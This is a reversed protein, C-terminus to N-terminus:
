FQRRVHRSAFDNIIADSDIEDLLIKEICLIALGNLREQSIKSRLYNKLLKLNSFSREASAVTVPVTFLLRERVYEFIDMASMPKDSLTLRLVSLESILDNLDVDSSGDFSFTNAFKTCCERLEITDLSKLTISDMLFGFIDKFSHLEEFRSKLSSIAIDVMALFIILKLLKKLKLIQKRVILKMMNNRGRLMVNGPFSPEVGLESAIEKAIILSSAFGNNRYNQFYSVTDEIRMLTADICMSPSQLQKSVKNVTFLIDYWIVMGLIFDFTGLLDFLNKADSRIKQMVGIRQNPIRITSLQFLASRIQPAQFRITKVSKIRSEWRTNCWSKVTLSEVHDGKHKGKMNSGNDYGQGRVHEINLGFSKISDLLSNFLGEGSTDDVKMFGLFYEEVKGTSMNVCRILLSMQEQHSVDPTCDLIVSFYKAEKVTNIISKTIDSALLSILENQIKHSLSLSDNQGNYLQESPGRFALNRKGLFKVVAIIRQLVQRIREKEKTIQQRLENWSNMSTIHQISAEHEKLRENIHKWDKFGEHGLSSKCNETNFLKCSFCFVRDVHKSYVLWKRDYVEENSMKRSYHTYSFHRGNTDLPFEINEDRIPGKEVLIDRSKNDLNDWNVLMRIPIETPPSNVIPEHDSVNNDNRNTDINEEPTFGQDEPNNDPQEEMAVIAKENQNRSTRLNSSFFKDM